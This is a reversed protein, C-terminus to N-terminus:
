VLYPDDKHWSCSGEHNYEVRVSINHICDSAVCECVCAFVTDVHLM